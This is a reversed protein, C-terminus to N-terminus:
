SLQTLIHKLNKCNDRVYDNNCLWDFYKRDNEKIWPISKGKHKGWNMTYEDNSNNKIYEKVEETTYPHNILWRCYSKDISLIDQINRSKYKGFTLLLESM